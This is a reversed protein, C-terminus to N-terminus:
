VARIRATASSGDKPEFVARPRPGARIVRAEQYGSLLSILEPRLTQCLPPRTSYINSQGSRLSTESSSPGGSGYMSTFDLQRAPKRSLQEGTAFSTSPVVALSLSASPHSSDM